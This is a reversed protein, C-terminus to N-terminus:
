FVNVMIHNWFIELYDFREQLDIDYNGIYDDFIKTEINVYVQIKKLNFSSSFTCLVNPNLLFFNLFYVNLIIIGFHNVNM